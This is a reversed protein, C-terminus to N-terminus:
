VFLNAIDGYEGKCGFELKFGVSELDLSGTTGIETFEEERLSQSQCQVTYDVPQLDATPLM